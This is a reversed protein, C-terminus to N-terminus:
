SSRSRSRSPRALASSTSRPLLTPPSSAPRSAATVEGPPPLTRGRRTRRPPERARSVFDSSFLHEAASILNPVCRGPSAWTPAPVGPPCEPARPLCTSSSPPFLSLWPPPHLQAPQPRLRRHSATTAPGLSDRCNNTLLQPQQIARYADSDSLNPTYPEQPSIYGAQTYSLFRSVRTRLFSCTPLCPATATPPPHNIFLSTSTPESRCRSKLSNYLSSSYSSAVHPSPCPLVPLQALSGASWHWHWIGRWCGCRALGLVGCAVWPGPLCCPRPPVSERERQQPEGVLGLQGQM